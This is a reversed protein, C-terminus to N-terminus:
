PNSSFSSQASISPWIQNNSLNIYAWYAIGNQEATVEILGDRYETIWNYQAPVVLIGQTDIMGFKGSKQLRVAAFGNRFGQAEAYKPQIVFAGATDIYGWLGHEKAPALGENFGLGSEYTRGLVNIGDGNQYEVHINNLYKGIAVPIPPSKNIDFDRLDSARQYQGAM